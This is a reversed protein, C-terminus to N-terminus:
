FLPTNSGTTNLGAVLRDRTPRNGDWAEFSLLLRNRLDRPLPWPVPPESDKDLPAGDGDGAVLELLTAFTPRAFFADASIQKGFQQEIATHLLLSRLSDGGLDFFDATRDLAGQLNLADRWIDALRAELDAGVRTQDRM